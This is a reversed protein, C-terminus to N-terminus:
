DRADCLVACFTPVVGRDSCGHCARNEIKATQGRRGELQERTQEVPAIGSNDKKPEAEHKSKSTMTTRETTPEPAVHTDGDAGHVLTCVAFVILCLKKM